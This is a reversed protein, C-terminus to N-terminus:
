KRGQGNINKGIPALATAGSARGQKKSSEPKIKRSRSRQPEGYLRREALEYEEVWNILESLSDQSSPDLKSILNIVQPYFDEGVFRHGSKRLFRAAIRLRHKETESFIQM